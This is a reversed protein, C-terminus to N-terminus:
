FALLTTEPTMFHDPNYGRRFYCAVREGLPPKRDRGGKKTADREKGKEQGDEHPSIDGPSDGCAPNAGAVAQGPGPLLICRKM